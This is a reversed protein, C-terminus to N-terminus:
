RFNEPKVIINSGLEKLIKNLRNALHIDTADESVDRAFEIIKSALANYDDEIIKLKIM